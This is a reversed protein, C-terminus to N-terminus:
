GGTRATVNFFTDQKPSSNSFSCFSFCFPSSSNAVVFSNMLAEVRPSPKREDTGIVVVVVVVFSALIAFLFAFLVATFAEDDDDFTSSTKSMEVVFSVRARKCVSRESM